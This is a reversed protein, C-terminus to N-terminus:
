PWARGSMCHILLSRIRSGAGIHQQQHREASEKEEVTEAGEAQKAGVFGAVRLYRAFHELAGIPNRGRQLALRPEFLWYQIVPLRHQRETDGADAVLSGAQGGSEVSGHEDAGDVQEEAAEAGATFQVAGEDRGTAGADNSKRAGGRGVHREGGSKGDCQKGPVGPVFAAPVNIEGGEVNSQRESGQGFARDRG